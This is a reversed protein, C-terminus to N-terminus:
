IVLMTLSLRLCVSSSMALSPTAVRTKRCGIAAGETSPNNPKRSASLFDAFQDVSRTPHLRERNSAVDRELWLRASRQANANAHAVRRWGRRSGM